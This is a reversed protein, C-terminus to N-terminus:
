NIKIKKRRMLVNARNAAPANVCCCQPETARLARLLEATNGGCGILPSFRYQSTMPRCWQSCCRSGLRCCHRHGHGRASREVDDHEAGRAERALEHNLLDGAAGRLTRASTRQFPGHGPSAPPPQFFHQLSGRVPQTPAEYLHRLGPHKPDGYSVNM